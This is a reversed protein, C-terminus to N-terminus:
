RDCDIEGNKDYVSGDPLTACLYSLSSNLQKQTINSGYLNAKTLDAKNLNAGLFNVNMFQAHSFFGKELSVNSLDANTFQAYLFKANSFNSNKLKANQLSCKVCESNSFNSASLDSEDFITEFMRSVVFNSHVLTKKRFNVRNLTSATWYSDNLNEVRFTEIQDNDIIHETIDCKQCNDLKNLKDIDSPIYAFSIIPLLGLFVMSFIKNKMRVDMKNGILPAIVDYIVSIDFLWDGIKTLHYIFCLDIIRQFYCLVM